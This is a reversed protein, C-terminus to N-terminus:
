GRGRARGETQCVSRRWNSSFSFRWWFDPASSVRDRASSPLSATCTPGSRKARWLYAPPDRKRERERLNKRKRRLKTNKNRRTILITNDRRRRKRTKLNQKWFSKTNGSIRLGINTAPAFAMTGDTALTTESALSLPMKTM